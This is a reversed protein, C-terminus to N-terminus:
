IGLFRMTEEQFCTMELHNTFTSIKMLAASIGIRLCMDVIDLLSMLSCCHFSCIWLGHICNVKMWCVLLICLSVDPIKPTDEKGLWSPEGAAEAVQIKATPNGEGWFIFCPWCGCVFSSLLFFCAFWGFVVFLAFLVPYVFALWVFVIPYVFVVFVGLLLCFLCVLCFVYSVYPFYICYELFCTSLYFPSSELAIFIPTFWKWGFPMLLRGVAGPPCWLRGIRHHHWQCPDCMRLTYFEM